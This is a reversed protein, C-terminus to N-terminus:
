NKKTLLKVKEDKIKEQVRTKDELTFDDSVKFSSVIKEIDYLFSTSNILSEIVEVVDEDLNSLIKQDEDNLKIGFKKKVFIELIDNKHKISDM